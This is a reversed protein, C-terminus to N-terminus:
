KGIVVVFGLSTKSGQVSEVGNRTAGAYTEAGPRMEITVRGGRGAKIAGVHVAANCISSNWSYLDVGRVTAPVVPARCVFTFRRGNPGLGMATRQGSIAAPPPPGAPPPPPAPKEWLTVSFSAEWAGWRDTTVDNRTSGSYAGEGPRMHLVITGGTAFTIVGAHVAATCISSDDTYTDTGWVQNPWGGPPCVLVVQQGMRNRYGNARTAWTIAAQARAEAAGTVLAVVVFFTRVTLRHIIM